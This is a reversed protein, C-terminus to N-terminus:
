SFLHLFIFILVIIFLFFIVTLVCRAENDSFDIGEAVKGRFVGFFLAGNIGNCSAYSTEKITARYSKMIDDLKSGIRPEFFVKKISDLEDMVGNEEWFDLQSKMMTYSSFFCLVGHPVTKCVQIVLKGLEDQLFLYKLM